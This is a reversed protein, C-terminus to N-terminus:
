NRKPYLAPYEARLWAVTRAVGDVLSIQPLGALKSTPDLPVMYDTSMRMLRESDLPAARGMMELADGALAVTKLLWAPARRTPLGTLQMSFEDLWSASDISGDALYFVRGHVADASAEMIATLQRVANGVYGYSRVASRSGSPHLYHRKSLYLWVSRPFSPHGPGWITTPRVIVWEMPLGRQRLEHEAMAKAEGYATYPRFDTEHMPHQGPGVVLQTSVHILRRVMPSKQVVDLLNRTGAHISAFAAVSKSHIEAYAALHVIIEPRAKAVAHELAANNLIDGGLWFRKHHENRPEGIDFITVAHGCAAIADVFHAGIFGSGGTVLINAMECDRPISPGNSEIILASIKAVFPPQEESRDFRDGICMYRM